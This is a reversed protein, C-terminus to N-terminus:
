VTSDPKPYNIEQWDDVIDGSGDEGATGWHHVLGLRTCVRQRVIIAGRVLSFVICEAAAIGFVYGAVAAHHKGPDLFTYTYFGQTLKTIYAVGLYCALLFINLPLLLWPMPGIHTFLVEFLMFASNLIHISINTWTSYRTAFTGPSSLLSWFVITVVVPFTTITSLLLMHFFQLIRPWRQLPYGDGGTRAFRFTQVGSAFFYACLGVYSLDTFYTFFQDGDGLKISDWVLKFLLVFFTYSALGLRLVGLVSPRFFPSTVLRQETDFPRHVGFYPYIGSIHPM